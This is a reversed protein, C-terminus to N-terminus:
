NREMWYKMEYVKNLVVASAYVGKDVFYAVDNAKPDGLLIFEANGWVPELNGISYLGGDICKVRGFSDPYARILSNLGLKNLSNQEM